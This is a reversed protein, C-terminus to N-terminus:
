LHPWAITLLVAVGLLNRWFLLAAPPVDFAVGRVM